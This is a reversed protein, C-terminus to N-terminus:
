PRARWEGCWHEKPKEIVTWAPNRACMAPTITEVHAVCGNAQTHVNMTRTEDVFYVCGDCRRVPVATADDKWTLMLRGDEDRWEHAKSHGACLSCQHIGCKAMCLGARIAEPIGTAADAAARIAAVEALMGDVAAPVTAPEVAAAERYIWGHGCLYCQHEGVHGGRKGCVCLHINTPEQHTASCVSVGFKLEGSM